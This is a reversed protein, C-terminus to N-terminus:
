LKPHCVYGWLRKRSMDWVSTGSFSKLLKSRRTGESSMREEGNARYRFGPVISPSWADHDDSELKTLSRLSQEMKVQIQGLEKQM